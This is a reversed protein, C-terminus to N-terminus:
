LMKFAIGKEELKKREWHPRYHMAVPNLFKKKRLGLTSLLKAQKRAIVACKNQTPQPQPPDIDYRKTQWM